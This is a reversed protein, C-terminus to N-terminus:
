SVLSFGISIDQYIKVIQKVQVTLQFIKDVLVKLWFPQTVTTYFIGKAYAAHSHTHM